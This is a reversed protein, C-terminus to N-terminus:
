VQKSVGYFIPYSVPIGYPTVPMQEVIKNLRRPLLPSKLSPAVGIGHIFRLVDWPNTMYLSRKEYLVNEMRLGLHRFREECEEEHWLDVVSLSEGTVSEYADYFEQFLGQVPIAVAFCRGSTLASQAIKGHDSFWHFANSSVILDVQEHYTYSEASCLVFHTRPNKEFSLNCQEIMKPAIDIATIVSEPYKNRLEQTLLGTGCGLELISSVKKPLLTCLKQAILHHIPTSQEYHKAARSFSQAIKDSIM